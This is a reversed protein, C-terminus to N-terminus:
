IYDNFDSIPEDFDSPVIIKGELGGLFRTKETICSKDFDSAMYKVIGKGIGFKRTKKKKKPKASQVFNYDIVYLIKDDFRVEQIKNGLTNKLLSNIIEFREEEQLTEVQELIDKTRQTM